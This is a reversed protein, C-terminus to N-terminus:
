ADPDKDKRAYHLVWFMAWRLKLEYLPRRWPSRAKRLGEERWAM